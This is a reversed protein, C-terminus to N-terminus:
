EEVWNIVDEIIKNVAKIDYIHDSSVQVFSGMEDEGFSLEIEGGIEDDFLFVSKGDIEEFLDEEKAGINKSIFHKVLIDVHRNIKNEYRVKITNEKTTNHATAKNVLDMFKEENIGSTGCIFCEDDHVSYGDSEKEIKVKGIITKFDGM